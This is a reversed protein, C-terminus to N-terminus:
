NDTKPKKKDVGQQQEENNNMQTHVAQRLYEIMGEQPNESHIIQEIRRRQAEDVNGQVENEYSYTVTSSAPLDPLQEDLDNKPKDDSVLDPTLTKLYEILEPFEDEEEIKQLPTQGDSNKARYDAKYEEVAYKAMDLSEVVHLPRDGDEDSVNIDGGVSILYDLLERHGYSVAAHMCTYGNVDKDNPGQGKSIYEKVKEVNGDSAAIWINSM